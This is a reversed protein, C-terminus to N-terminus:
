RLVADAEGQFVGRNVLDGAAPNASVIGHDVRKAQEGRPLQVLRFIPFVEPTEPELEFRAAVV